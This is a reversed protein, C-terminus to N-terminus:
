VDTTFSSLQDFRVSGSGSSQGAQITITFTDSTDLEYDTGRIATDDEVTVTVDVNRSAVGQSLTATVTILRANFNSEYESLGTKNLTLEVRLDDDVITATAPTVQHNSTTSGSVLVTEDQESDTDEVTTLTFADTASNAEHPIVTNFGSVATYDGPAEATGDGVSVTVTTPGAPRVGDKFAATVTVTQQPDGETVEAAAGANDLTLGIKPDDDNITLPRAYDLSEPGILTPDAATGFSLAFQEDSSDADSNAVVTFTQFADGENFVLNGSTLGQLQYKTSDSSGVPTLVIPIELNERAAGPDFSFGYGGRFRRYATSRWLGVHVTIEEGEKAGYGIDSFWM